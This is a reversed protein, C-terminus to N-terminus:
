DWITRQFRWATHADASFSSLYPFGGSDNADLFQNANNTQFRDCNQVRFYIANSSHHEVLRWRGSATVDLDSCKRIYLNGERNVDLFGRQSRNFLCFWGNKDRHTLKWTTCDNDYGSIYPRDTDHSNADLVHDGRSLNCLRYWGIITGELRLNSSIQALVNHGAGDGQNYFDMMLVGLRGFPRRSLTQMHGHNLKLAMTHPDGGNAFPINNWNGYCSLFNLYYQNSSDALAKDMTQDVASSKNSCDTAVVYWDQILFPTQGADTTNDRWLQIQGGPPADILGQRSFLVLKGRVSGLSPFQESGKYWPYQRQNNHEDSLTGNIGYARNWKARFEETNGEDSKPIVVIAEDKHANLFRVCDDLAQDFWYDLHGDNDGHCFGIRPNGNGFSSAFGRFDLVRIGDQLQQEFNQNQCQYFARAVIARATDSMPAWTASDHTGPLTMRCLLVDDPMRSMWDSTNTEPNINNSAMSINSALIQQLNEVCTKRM